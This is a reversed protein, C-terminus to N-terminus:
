LTMRLAHNLSQCFQCSCFLTCSPITITSSFNTRSEINSTVEPMLLAEGRLIPVVPALLCQHGLFRSTM